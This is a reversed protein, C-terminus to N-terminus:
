FLDKFLNLIFRLHKLTKIFTHGKGKRQYSRFIGCLDLNRFKGSTPKQKNTQRQKQKPKAFLVTYPMHTTIGLFLLATLLLTSFSGKGWRNAPFYRARWNGWICTSVSCHEYRHQCFSSVNMEGSVLARFCATRSLGLM